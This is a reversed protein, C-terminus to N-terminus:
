IQPRTQVVRTLKSAPVIGSKLIVKQGIDNTIFNVFGRGLAAGNEKLTAVMYRRMPYMHTAIYGPHPTYYFAPNEGAGMEITYLNKTFQLTEEDVNDSIWNVGIVGLANANNQVYKLVEENTKQAYAKATIPQGSLVSDQIYQVTSSAQHDFVLNIKGSQGGKKLQSFDTIEGKCIKAFEVTSIQLGKRNNNGILAVADKALIISKPFYHKKTYFSAFYSSDIPMSTVLIRISDNESDNLVELAPKYTVDIHANPYQAEFVMIESDMVPKYTEDVVIHIRGSTPTDTLRNKDQECSVFIAIGAFFAIWLLYKM